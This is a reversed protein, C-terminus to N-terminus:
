SPFTLNHKSFFKPEKSLSSPAKLFLQFCTLICAYAYISSYIERKLASMFLDYDVKVLSKLEVVASRLALVRFKLWYILYVLFNLFLEVLERMAVM